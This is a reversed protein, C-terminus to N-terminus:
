NSAKIAAVYKAMSDSVNVDTDTDEQTEETLTEEVIAAPSVAPKGNFYSEKITDVKFKFNDENEFEVGEVLKELKSAETSALDYSAEVIIASRKLNSITENMDVNTQTQKNLLEELELVEEALQDVLDVKTEPVEIYSETFLDKLKGMFGEAIETRIGQEVAIRNEEMWQEVVYNLYSDIKDVLDGKAENIAEETETAYQEELSAVKEGFAEDLEQVKTAVRTTLAAEFITSAKAKFDESLSEDTSILVELDATSTDEVMTEEEMDVEIEEGMMKEYAAKIETKTKMGNMKDTMANVMGAKTKPPSAKKTVQAAKQVSQVSNDEAGEPDDSLSAETVEEHSEVIENDDHVELEQEQTQDTM